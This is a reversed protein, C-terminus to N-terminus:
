LSSATITKDFINMVLDQLKQSVKKNNQFVGSNALRLLESARYVGGQTVFHVLDYINNTSLIV